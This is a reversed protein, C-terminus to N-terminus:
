AKSKLATIFEVGNEYTPHDFGICYQDLELGKEACRLAEDHRGLKVNLKAVEFYMSAVERGTIGEAEFLKIFRKTMRLEADMGEANKEVTAAFEKIRKREEARREEGAKGRATTLDCAPCDCDFGYGEQLKSGRSAALSGLEPLYNLTVEEGSKIDRLAHVNFRGLTSHFNGQANPLCSHNIRAVNDFVAQQISGGGGLDFSNSRFVNFITMHERMSRPSPISSTFTSPHRVSRVLSKVNWWVVQMWRAFELSQGGSHGSLDLLAKRDNQTLSKTASFIGDVEQDQRIALLPRESLIRTGRAIPSKAFLGLGKVGAQRIEYKM